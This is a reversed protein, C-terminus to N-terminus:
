DKLWTKIVKSAGGPDERILKEIEERIKLRELTAPDAEPLDVEFDEIEEEAGKASLILTKDIPKLFARLVMWFIMLVLFVVLTRVVLNVIESTTMRPVGALEDRLSTDFEKFAVNVTDGAAIDLGAASAVINEVEAIETTTGVQSADAGGNDIVVSVSCKKLTGPAQTRIEHTSSTDYNKTTTSSDSAFPTGTVGPYSPINSTTGPVGGSTNWGEGSASDETTEESIIVGHDTGSIPDYTLSETQVADFDMQCTFSVAVKGFGYAPELVRRIDAARQLEYNRRAEEQSPLLGMSDDFVPGTLLNMNQDIITVQDPDLTGIAGAVFTRVAAIHERSLTTGPRLGIVVSASPEEQESIFPTPEPINLHVRAADVEELSM